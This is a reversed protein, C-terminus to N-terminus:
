KMALHTNPVVWSLEGKAPIVLASIRDAPNRGTGTFYFMSTGAELVIADLKNERMLRQAKDVRARREADTIPQVGDLMPHLKKIADPVDQAGAFQAAAGAATALFVRRNM